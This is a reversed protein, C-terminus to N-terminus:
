SNAGELLLPYLWTAYEKQAVTAIDIDTVFDSIPLTHNAVFQVELTQPNVKLEIERPGVFDSLFYSDSLNSYRVWCANAEGPVTFPKYFSTIDTNTEPGNSPTAPKFNYVAAGNLADAVLVASTGPVNILGFPRLGPAVSPTDVRPSALTGDENVAWTSMRGQRQPTLGDPKVEGKVSIHLLTGDENFIIDSSSLVSNVTSPTTQGV